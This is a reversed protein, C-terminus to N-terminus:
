DLPDTRLEPEPERGSRYPTVPEVLEDGPLESGAPVGDGVVHGAVTLGGEHIGPLRVCSGSAQQVDVLGVEVKRESSVSGDAGFAIAAACRM